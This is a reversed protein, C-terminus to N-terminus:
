TGVPSWRERRSRWEDFLGGPSAATPTTPLSCFGPRVNVVGRPSGVGSVQQLGWSSPVSKAKSLQLRRLSALVGNIAFFGPFRSRRLSHGSPSLPPSDSPPSTPPSMLTSTPSSALGKSFYGDLVSSAPASQQQQAQPRRAAAGAHPRLLLRPTPLQRRGQLGTHPVQLSPALVRVGRPRIAPTGAGPRRGPHAYPCETWDHSRGRVCRRVKFEYMRFEDCSYADVPSDMLDDEEAEEGQEEERRRMEESAYPENSPLFRQLAALAAESLLFSSLDGGNGGAVGSVPISYSMGTVPDDCMQWPPVQFMASPRPGEGLIM